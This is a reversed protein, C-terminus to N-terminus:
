EAARKQNPDASRTLAQELTPRERQLYELCAGYYALGLGHLFAGCLSSEALDCASMEEIKAKLEAIRADIMSLLLPAPVLDGNLLTFLFDSRLRDPEPPQSLAETLRRRGEETIAFVKKDPRKQQEFSTATVAGEETLRKLAPYISGFGTDQFLSHPPQELTKKIEYGSATGRALVALCLTRTDM